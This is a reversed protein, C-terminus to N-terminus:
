EAHELLRSAQEPDDYFSLSNADDENDWFYGYHAYMAIVVILVGLLLVGCFYDWVWLIYYGEFGQRCLGENLFDQVQAQLPSCTSINRIDQMTVAMQALPTQTALLYTNGRCAGSLLSKIKASVTILSGAAKIFSPELPNTGSCTAYYATLQGPHSAPLVTLFNKIPAM